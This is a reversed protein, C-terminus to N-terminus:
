PVVPGPSIYACLTIKRGSKKPVIHLPLLTKNNGSAFAVATCCLHLALSHNFRNVLGSRSLTLHVRGEPDEAKGAAGYEHMGLDLQHAVEPPPTLLGPSSGCRPRRVLLPQAGTAVRRRGQREEPPPEGAPVGADLQASRLCLTCSGGPGQRVTGLRAGRKDGRHTRHGDRPDLRTLPVSLHGTKPLILHGMKQM